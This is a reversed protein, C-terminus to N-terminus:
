PAQDTAIRKRDRGDSSRRRSAEGCRQRPQEAMPQGDPMLRERRVFDKEPIRWPINTWHQYGSKITMFIYADEGISSWSM